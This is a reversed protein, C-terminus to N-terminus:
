MIIIQISLYIVYGWLALGSLSGQLHIGSTQGPMQQGGQITINSFVSNVVTQKLSAHCKAGSSM